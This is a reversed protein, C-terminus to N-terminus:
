FRLLAFPYAGIIFAAASLWGTRHAWTFYDAGAVTDALLVRAEREGQEPALDWVNIRADLDHMRALAGLSNLYMDLVALALGVAFFVASPISCFVVAKKGMDTSAVLAAAGALGAGNVFALHKVTEVTWLDHEARHSERWNVASERIRQQYELVLRQAQEPTM